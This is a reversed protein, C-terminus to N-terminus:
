HRFHCYSAAFILSIITAYAYLTAFRFPPPPPAFIAYHRFYALAVDRM